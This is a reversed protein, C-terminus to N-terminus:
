AAGNCADAGGTDDSQCCLLVFVAGLSPFTLGVHRHATAVAATGDRRAAAVPWGDANGRRSVAKDAMFEQETKTAIEDAKEKAEQSCNSWCV